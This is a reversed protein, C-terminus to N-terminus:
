KGGGARHQRQGDRVGKAYAQRTDLLLARPVKLWYWARRAGAVALNLPIPMVVADGTRWEVWAVGYGAPIVDGQAVTRVLLATSTDQRHHQQCRPCCEWTRAADGAKIVYRSAAPRHGIMSCIFSRM